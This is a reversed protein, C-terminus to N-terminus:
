AADTLSGKELTFSFESGIEAQSEVFIQERHAEIIHKVIALGLGSGGRRRNGSKDVRYFREFLRPLHEQEIGEGNDRVRVMIKDDAVSQVSVETTGKKKGYKISNMVLNTLVQQVRERDAYVGIASTYKQDFELSISSKVAQMELLEFVSQIVELVDFNELELQTDGKELKTLLDLDKVIYTLREVGKNARELYKENVSTDKFAGDLLTLIYGQVTFLPTKLEHAINGLFERRFSAQDKLSNLEVSRRLALEKVSELLSDMNDAILIDHIEGRFEPELDQYLQKIGKYIFREIRYNLVLFVTIFIVFGCGILVLIKDSSFLITDTFAYAFGVTLLLVIDTIILSTILSFRYSKLPRKAM